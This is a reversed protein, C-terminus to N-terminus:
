SVVEKRRVLIKYYVDVSRVKYKVINRIIYKVGDIDIEDKMPNITFTIYDCPVFINRYHEPLWGAEVYRADRMSINEYIGKVVYNTTTYIPQGYNDKGSVAYNTITIDVGYKDIADKLEKKINEEWSSM